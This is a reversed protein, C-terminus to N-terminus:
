GREQPVPNEEGKKEVIKESFEPSKPDPRPSPFSCLFSGQRGLVTPKRVPFFHWVFSILKNRFPKFKQWCLHDSIQRIEVWMM